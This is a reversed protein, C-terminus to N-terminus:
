SAYAWCAPHVLWLPFLNLCFGFLWLLQLCWQGAVIIGLPRNEHSSRLAKSGLGPLLPASSVYEYANNSQLSCPRIQESFRSGGLIWSLQTSVVSSRFPLHVPTLSLSTMFVECSLSSNFFYQYSLVSLHKMKMPEYVGREILKFWKSALQPALCSTKSQLGHHMKRKERSHLHAQGQGLGPALSNSCFYNSQIMMCFDLPIEIRVTVDSHWTELCQGLISHSKVDWGDCPDKQLQHAGGPSERHGYCPSQLIPSKESSVRTLLCFRVQWESGLRFQDVHASSWLAKRIIHSWINKKGGKMEKKWTSLEFTHRYTHKNSYAVVKVPSVQKLDLVRFISPLRKM